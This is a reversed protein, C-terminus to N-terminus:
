YGARTRGSNRCRSGAPRLTRPPASCLRRRRMRLRWAPVRPPPLPHLPWGPSGCSQAATCYSLVLTAPHCANGNRVFFCFFMPSTEFPASLGSDHVGGGPCLACLSACSSLRKLAPSATAVCCLSRLAVVRTSDRAASSRPFRLRARRQRANHQWPRSDESLQMLGSVILAHM